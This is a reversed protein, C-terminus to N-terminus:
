QHLALSCKSDLRGRQAMEGEELQDEEDSSSGFFHRSLRDTRDNLADMSPTRHIRDITRTHDDMLVGVSFRKEVRDSKARNLLKRTATNSRLEPTKSSERSGGSQFRNTNEDAFAEDLFSRLDNGLSTFNSERPPVSSFQASLRKKELAPSPSRVKNIQRPLSTTLEDKSQTRTPVSPPTSPSTLTPSEERAGQRGAMKKDLLPPSGSPPDPLSRKNLLPPSDPPPDPLSRKAASVSVLKPQSSTNGKTPRRVEDVPVDSSNSQRVGKSAATQLKAVVAKNDEKPETVTREATEDTRESVSHFSADSKLPKTESADLKLPKTESADSKLPKTESADSKLPKTESADSKLPKTESADSKLPKTESADSKLPKTESADSKLPKTESADSKLPKTESADSKLPKTDEAASETTKDKTAASGDTKAAKGHLPSPSTNTSHGEFLQIAAQIRSSRAPLSSTSSGSDLDDKADSGKKKKTDESSDSEGAKHKLIAIRDAISLVVDSKAARGLSRGVATHSNDKKDVVLLNCGDSYAQIKHKRAPEPTIASRSTTMEILEKEEKALESIQPESNQRKIPTPSPMYFTSGDKVEEENKGKEKSKSGFSFGFSFLTSFRKKARQTRSEQGQENASTDIDSTETSLPGTTSIDSNPKWPKKKRKDKSSKYDIDSTVASSNEEEMKKKIKPPYSPSLEVISVPEVAEYYNDESINNVEEPEMYLVSDTKPPCDPSEGGPSSDLDEHTDSSYPAPTTNEQTSLDTDSLVSSKPRRRPKARRQDRLNTQHFSRSVLLKKRNLM